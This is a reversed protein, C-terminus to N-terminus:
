VVESVKLGSKKVVEQTAIVDDSLGADRLAKVLQRAVELDQQRQQQDVQAQLRKREAKEKDLKKKLAAKDKQLKAFQQAEKEEQKRREERRKEREQKRVVRDATRKLREAERQRQRREKKFDGKARDVSRLQRDVRARRLKKQERETALHERRDPVPKAAETSFRAALTNHFLKSKLVFNMTVILHKCAVSSLSRNRIKPFGRQPVIGYGGVTAKYSYWYLFRGCTCDIKVPGEVAKKVAPLYSGRDDLPTRLAEEMQTLQIRTRHYLQGSKPNPSETRVRFALENGKMAVFTPAPINRAGEIDRRIKPNSFSFSPYPSLQALLAKISTGTSRMQRSVARQRSDFRKLQAATYITSEGYERLSLQGRRQITRQLAGLELTRGQRSAAIRSMRQARTIARSQRLFDQYQQRQSAVNAVGTPNKEEAM